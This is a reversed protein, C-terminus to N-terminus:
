DLAGLDRLQKEAQEAWGRNAAPSAPSPHLIEGITVSTGALVKEARMRAFRGVGVVRQPELVDVLTRLAADCLELIADRDQPRLKDPTVNRGGEDMFALPCYNAVFFRAFFQEPTGFRSQAWGWLRKGSVESRTCEFGLVPKKPHPNRPKGVKGEIGLWGKVLSVEGFPVGTQMMGWPGPNMGLLLTPVRHRAYKEVYSRHCEAAYTLPDYVYFAPASLELADLRKALKTFCPALAAAVRVRTPVGRKYPSPPRSALSPGAGVGRCPM